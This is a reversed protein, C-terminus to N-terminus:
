QGRMDLSIKYSPPLQHYFVKKNLRFLATLVHFDAKKNKPTKNLLTQGYIGYRDKKM